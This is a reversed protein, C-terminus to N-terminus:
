KPRSTLVLETAGASTTRCDITRGKLLRESLARAVVLVTTGAHTVVDDDPTVRDPVLGVHGGRGLSLRLGVDAGETKMSRRRELLANKARETVRM